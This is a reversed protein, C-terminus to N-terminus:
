KRYFGIYYLVITLLEASAFLNLSRSSPVLAALAAIAAWVVIITVFIFFYRM